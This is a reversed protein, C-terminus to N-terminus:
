DDNDIAEHIDAKKKESIERLKERPVVRCRISSIWRELAYPYERREAKRHKKLVDHEAKIGM